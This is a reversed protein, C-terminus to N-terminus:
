RRSGRECDPHPLMSAVITTALAPTIGREPDAHAALAAVLVDDWARWNGACRERDIRKLIAEDTAALVPHRERLAGILDDEALNRFQVVRKIRSRVEPAAAWLREFDNGVLVIAPGGALDVLYRLHQVGVPDLLHAEDVVILIRRGRLATLGRDVLRHATGSTDEDLASLLRRLVENGRTRAALHIWVSPSCGRWLDLAAHTKGTGPPGQVLLIGRLHLTDQGLVQVALYDDTRVATAGPPAVPAPLPVPNM